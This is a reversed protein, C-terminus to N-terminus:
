SANGVLAFALWCYGVTFCLLGAFGLAVSLRYKTHTQNKHHLWDEYFFTTCGIFLVLFVTSMALLVMPSGFCPPLKGGTRLVSSGALLVISGTALGVIFEVLQTYRNLTPEFSGEGRYEFTYKDPKVLVKVFVCAVCYCFIFISIGALGGKVGAISFIWALFSM